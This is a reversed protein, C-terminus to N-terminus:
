KYTGSIWFTISKIKNNLMMGFYVKMRLVICYKLILLHLFLSSIHEGTINEVYQMYIYRDDDALRKRLDSKKSALLRSMMNDVQRFQLLTNM